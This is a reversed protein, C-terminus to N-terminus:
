RSATLTVRSLPPHSSTIKDRRRTVTTIASAGFRTAARYPSATFGKGISRSASLPLRAPQGAGVAVPAVVAWWASVVIALIM